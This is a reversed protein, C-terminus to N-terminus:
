IPGAPIRIGVVNFRFPASYRADRLNRISSILLESFIMLMSEPDFDETDGNLDSPESPLSYELSKDVPKIESYIPILGSDTSITLRTTLGALHGMDLSCM